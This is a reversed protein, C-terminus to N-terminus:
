DLPVTVQRKLAIPGFPLLAPAIFSFSYSACINMTPPAGAARQASVKVTNPAKYNTLVTQAQAVACNELANGIPTACGPVLAQAPCAPPPPGAPFNVPNYVMAYRGGEDVALLMTSYNWYAMAFEVLGLTIVLFTSLVIAAEVATAGEESRLLRSYRAMSIKAIM